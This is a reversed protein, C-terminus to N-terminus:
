TSVLNIEPCALILSQFNTKFNRGFREFHHKYSNNERDVVRNVTIFHGIQQLIERRKVATM